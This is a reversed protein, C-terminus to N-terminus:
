CWFTIHNTDKCPYKRLSQNQEVGQGFFSRLYRQQGGVDKWEQDTKGDITDVQKTYTNGHADVMRVMEEGSEDQFFKKGYDQYELYGGAEEWRPSWHSWSSVTKGKYEYTGHKEWVPLNLMYEGAIKPHDICYGTKGFAPTEWPLAPIDLNRLESWINAVTTRVPRLEDWFEHLGHGIGGFFGRDRRLLGLTPTALFSLATTLLLVTKPSARNKSPAM